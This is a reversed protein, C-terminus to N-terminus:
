ARRAVAPVQRRTVADAVRKMVLLDCLEGAEVREVESARLQLMTALGGVTLKRGVRREEIAAGFVQLVALLVRVSSGKGRELTQITQRHMGALDALEDQSM